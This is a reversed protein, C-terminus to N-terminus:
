DARPARLSEYREAAQVLIELMAPTAPSLRADTPAAAIVQRLPPQPALARIAIDERVISLALEPILAVGVGAAVLGQVTQYDDSEFSM